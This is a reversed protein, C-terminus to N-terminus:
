FDDVPPIATSATAFGLSAFTAKMICKVRGMSLMQPSCTLTLGEPPESPALVLLFRAHRTFLSLELTYLSVVLM